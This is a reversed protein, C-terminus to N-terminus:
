ICTSDLFFNKLVKLEESIVKFLVQVHLFLVLKSVSYSFITILCVLDVMKSRVYKSGSISKRFFKELDWQFTM